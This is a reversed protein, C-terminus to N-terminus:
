EYLAEQDVAFVAYRCYDQHQCFLCVDVKSKSQYLTHPSTYLNMGTMGDPSYLKGYETLAQDRVERNPFKVKLREETYHMNGLDSIGQYDIDSFGDQFQLYDYVQRKEVNRMAPFLCIVNEYIEDMGMGKTKMLSHISAILGNIAYNIHFENQFTPSKEVVYGFAYKMPCIAYDMKAEKSVNLPMRKLDYPVIRNGGTKMEEVKSYSIRKRASPIIEVNAADALLKIYPSPALLKEGVDSIWSLQVNENKVATYMFYRNCIYTCEMIHMMNLLLPNATNRYISEILSSTLPWVYEKKGGPMNDIDCLCLHVNGHEKIRAAEIYYIPSVMGTKSDQIETDNFKGSLYLNLASSIDSPFCEEVSSEPDSFKNFLEEVLEREEQYLENSMEHKKLILDLKNIHERVQLKKNTGFLEKAMDLLRKILTLIVHLKEESVSFISFNLFPNGMIEQWHAVSDDIDLNKNFPSVVDEIIEQLLKIRNEWEAIRSCDKFFPLVRILDQMYQKGSAGDLALWGSAFCDILHDEDLVIEQLDEDWMKNLTNVFQGIPYSLIKREGYNEPYFDRLIRNASNPNPSYIKYGQESIRKMGHVFEMVSGYEKITLNSSLDASRGEFIEGAAEYNKRSDMIWASQEPFEFKKSYTLRWIENAYPYLPNYNFLFILNIGVKELLKLVREQIPTFYYFGHFVITDIGSKGFVNNLIADWASRQELTKFRNRFFHITPDHETLYKWAGVLFEVNKDGNTPIDSIDINAEELLIIASLLMGLNRRCGVLWKREAQNEGCRAIRERIYQSLIVTERFKTEDDTWRPIIAEILRSIERAHVSADGTFIGQVGDYEPVGKLCKRLDATVTIQPISKIDNWYFCSDLTELNTYTYVKRSMIWEGKM